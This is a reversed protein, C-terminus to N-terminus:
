DRLDRPTQNVSITTRAILNCVGEARETRERVGGNPVRHETWPTATLMQM